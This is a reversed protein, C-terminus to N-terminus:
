RPSTTAPAVGAAQRLLERVAGVDDRISRGEATRQVKLGPSIVSRGDPLILTPIGRIGQEKADAGAAQAQREASGDELMTKFAAVDLGAAVAVESLADVSDIPRPQQFIAQRVMLDFKEAVTIDQDLAVEYAAFLLRSSAPWFGSSPDWCAFADPELPRLLRVWKDEDDARPQTGNAAELPWPHFRVALNLGDAKKIRLIRTAEVNCFPCIYDHWM